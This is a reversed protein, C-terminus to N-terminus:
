KPDIFILESVLSSSNGASDLAIVSIRNKGPVLGVVASFAGGKPVLAVPSNQVPAGSDNVVELRLSAVGGADSVTGKIVVKDVYVQGHRIDAGLVPAPEFRAGLSPA